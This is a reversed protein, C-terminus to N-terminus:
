PVIFDSLKKAFKIIWLRNPVSLTAAVLSALLIVWLVDQRVQPLKFQARPMLQVSPSVAGDVGGDPLQVITKLGFDDDNVLALALRRGFALGEAKKMRAANLDFLVRTKKLTVINAYNAYESGRRGYVMELDARLALAAPLM